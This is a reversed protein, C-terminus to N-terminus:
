LQHWIGCRHFALTSLIYGALLSSLALNPIQVLTPRSLSTQANFQSRPPNQFRPAPESITGFAVFWTARYRSVMILMGRDEGDTMQATRIVYLRDDLQELIVTRETTIKNNSEIMLATTSGAMHWIIHSAHYIHNDTHGALHGSHLDGEDWTPSIPPCTPCAPWSPLIACKFVSCHPFTLCM